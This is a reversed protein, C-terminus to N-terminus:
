ATTAVLATYVRRMDNKTFRPALLRMVAAICDNIHARAIPPFRLRGDRDFPYRLKPTAHILQPCPRGIRARMTLDRDDRRSM